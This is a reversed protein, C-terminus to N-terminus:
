VPKRIARFHNHPKLVVINFLYLYDPKSRSFTIEYFACNLPESHVKSNICKVIWKLQSFLFSKCAQGAAAMKDSHSVATFVYWVKFAKTFFILIWKWIIWSMSTQFCIYFQLLYCHTANASIVISAVSLEM